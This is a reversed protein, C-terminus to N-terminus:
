VATAVPTSTAATWPSNKTLTWSIAHAPPRPSPALSLAVAPDVELRVVVDGCLISGWTLLAELDELNLSITPAAVSVPDTNYGPVLPHGM